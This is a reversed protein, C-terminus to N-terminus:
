SVERFALKEWMNSITEIDNILFINHWYNLYNLLVDLTDDVQIKEGAEKSLTTVRARLVPPFKEIPAFCNIGIGVVLYDLREGAGRSEILIGAVKKENILIDNPPKLEAKKCIMQGVTQCVAIGVLREFIWVENPAIDPRLILSCYLGGNPSYWCNGRRGRGKTQIKATIVTGEKLGQLALFHAQTNTSEVENFNLIISGILSNNLASKLIMHNNPLQEVLEM